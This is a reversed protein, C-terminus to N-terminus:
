NMSVSPNRMIIIAIESSNKPVLWRCACIETEADQSGGPNNAQKILCFFPHHVCATYHRAFLNYINNWSRGAPGPTLNTLEHLKDVGASLQHNTKQIKV